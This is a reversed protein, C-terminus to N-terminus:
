ASSVSPISPISLALSQDSFPTSPVDVVKAEMKSLVRQVEAGWATKETAAAEAKARIEAPTKAATTPVIRWTVKLYRPSESSEPDMPDNSISNNPNLARRLVAIQIETAMVRPPSDPAARTAVLIVSSPNKKKEGLVASPKSVRALAELTWSAHSNLDPSSHPSASVLPSGHIHAPGFSKSHLLPTLPLVSAGEEEAASKLDVAILANQSRWQTSLVLTDEDLFCDPDLLYTNLGPFRLNPNRQGAVNRSGGGYCDTRDGHIIPIVVKIDLNVEQPQNPLKDTTKIPGRVTTVSRKDGGEKEAETAPHSGGGNTVSMVSMVSMVSTVSMVAAAKAAAAQVEPPPWACQLLAATGGHMGSKVSEAQSLFVLRRGSPSFIPNGPIFPTKETSSLRLAHAPLLVRSLPPSSTSSSSFNTPDSPSDVSQGGGGEYLGDVGIPIYYLRTERNYCYIAGLKKGRSLSSDNTTHPWGVVLLGQTVPCFAPLGYTANAPLVSLANRSQSSALSSINRTSLDLLFVSPDRKGSNLEGWDEHAKGQGRWTRPGANDKVAEGGGWLPTQEEAPTEAVYAVLKGDTSWAAGSAFYGDNVIAGHLTKPIVVEWDLRSERWLQLAVSAGSADAPAKVFLLQCDGTPSSVSLLVDPAIELPLTVFAAAASESVDEVVAVAEEETDKPSLSNTDVSRNLSQSASRILTRSFTVSLSTPPSSPPRLDSLVTTVNFRRQVNGPINRQSFTTTVALPDSSSVDGDFTGHIQVKSITPIDLM